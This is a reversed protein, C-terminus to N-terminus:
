HAFLFCRVTTVLRKCVLEDRFLRCSLKISREQIHGPYM